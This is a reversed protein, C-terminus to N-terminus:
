CEIATALIAQLTLLGLILSAILWAKNGRYAAVISCILASLHILPDLACWPWHPPIVFVVGYLGISAVGWKNLKSIVKLLREWAESM